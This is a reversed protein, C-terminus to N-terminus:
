LELLGPSSMLDWNPFKLSKEWVNPRLPIRGMEFEGRAIEPTWFIITVLLVFVPFTYKSVVRCAVASLRGPVRAAIDIASVAAVVPEEPLVFKLGVDLIHM